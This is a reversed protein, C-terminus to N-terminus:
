LGAHSLGLKQAQEMAEAVVFLSGTVCILDKKGALTLALPLATSIDGAARADIGHRNIEAIVRDTTAARPHASRTVIVTDFLPVLETIIGAIDKDYSAGIILVARDFNFYRELSQRLVRASYPNHAGDVVLLPQRSLVQLRGPWNVRSLGDVVVDPTIHFGKETLV